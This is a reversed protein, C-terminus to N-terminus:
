NIDPSLNKKKIANQLLIETRLVVFWKKYKM